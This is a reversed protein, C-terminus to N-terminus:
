LTALFFFWRDPVAKIRQQIPHIWSHRQALTAMVFQDCIAPKKAETYEHFTRLYEEIYQGIHSRHFLIIGGAIFKETRHYEFLTPRPGEPLPQLAQLYVGPETIQDRTTFEELHSEWDPTRVCGADVWVFWSEEPHFEAAEEVFYPKSAWISGLEWTHYHETNYSMHEKWTAKPIDAYVPLHEVNRVHIEVNPGAIQKVLPYTDVDTFFTIPHPKLYAFFNVMAQSYMEKSKNDCMIDYKNPIRFFASVIRM